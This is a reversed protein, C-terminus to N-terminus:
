KKITLVKEVFSTTSHNELFPLVITKGGNKSVVDNGIIKDIKYDGGKVLVDPLFYSIIEFPTDEEFICVADIFKLSSLVFARSKEDFIPRSNGKLRKVSADSNIAVILFDGLNKAKKLYDVHGLHLIDFCGNTFVIKKNKSKLLDIKNKLIEKNLFIKSGIFEKLKMM